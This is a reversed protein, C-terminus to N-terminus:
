GNKIFSGRDIFDKLEQWEGANMGDLARSFAEVVYQTKPRSLLFAATMVKGTLSDM